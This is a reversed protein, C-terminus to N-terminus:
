ASLFLLPFLPSRLASGWRARCRWGIGWTGRLGFSRSGISRSLRCCYRILRGIHHGVWVRILLTDHGVRRWWCVFISVVSLLFNLFVLCLHTNSPCKESVLKGITVIDVLVVLFTTTIGSGIGIRCNCRGRFLLAFSRACSQRGLAFRLRWVLRRTRRLRRIVVLLAVRWLSLVAAIHAELHVM